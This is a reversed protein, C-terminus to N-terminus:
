RVARTATASASVDAAAAAIWAATAAGCKRSYAGNPSSKPAVASACAAQAISIIVAGDARKSAAAMGKERLLTRAADIDGGTEQLARNCDM